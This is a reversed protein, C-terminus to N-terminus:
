STLEMILYNIQMWPDFYQACCSAMQKCIRSRYLLYWLQKNEDNCSVFDKPGLINSMRQLSRRDITTGWAYDSGSFAELHFLSDKPYWFGLYININLIGLSEHPCCTSIFGTLSKFDQWVSLCCVNHRRSANLVHSKWHMVQLSSMLVECEEDKSMLLAQDESSLKVEKAATSEEPPIPQTTHVIFQQDDLEEADDCTIGQEKSDAYNEKRVPIYNLSSNFPGLDFMRDPGKGKSKGLVAIVCLWCIVAKLGFLQITSPLRKQNISEVSVPGFLDMHLLELPERVTREEIKKCSARHQKGKRCAVCSHDLKFTKSPLGRVLNGKVSTSIKSTSVWRRHWLVAKMRQQGAVLFSDVLPIINGKSGPTSVNELVGSEGFRSIGKTEMITKSKDSCETKCYQPLVVQSGVTSGKKGLDNLLKRPDKLDIHTRSYSSGRQAWNGKDLEQGLLTKVKPSRNEFSEESFETNFVTETSAQPHLYQKTPRKEKSTKVYTFDTVKLGWFSIDSEMSNNWGTGDYCIDQEADFNRPGILIKMQGTAVLAKLQIKWLWLGRRMVVM